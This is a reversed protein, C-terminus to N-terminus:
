PQVFINLASFIRANGGPADPFDIEATTYPANSPDVVCKVWYQDQADDGEDSLDIGYNSRSMYTINATSGNITIVDPAINVTRPPVPISPNLIELYVVEGTAPGSSPNSFGGGHAADKAILADYAGQEESTLAAINLPSGENLDVATNYFEFTPTDTTIIPDGFIILKYDPDSGPFFPDAEMRISRASPFMPDNFTETVVCRKATDTGNLIPLISTADVGTGPFPVGAMALITPYLDIVHVLRDSTSGAAITMDPGLAIFPVHIGGEYPDSKSNGTQGTPGYPAQVVQAPTGNDGVLIINTTNLDVSQLLRGIETDLAELAKEYLERNSTGTSGQLLESPPEHFPTHPANFGMWVFWPTGSLEQADIFTVAENVQDTTTYTTTGPTVTGNDNKIWDYYDGAGGGTIGIFEPWGGTNSYGDDDMAGGTGGLHWKGYSALAYPSGANAFAEPLTTEATSLIQGPAGVGTRWSQRGTIIAARTPSCVPQAYGNTFRVGQAALAQLNAMTPFTTGPNLTSNNDLPSSDTGWDDVILLLINHHTAPAITHTGLQTGGAGQFVAVVEFTGPGLDSLDVDFTLEQQSPRSVTGLDVSIGNVTISNPLFGLNAQAGQGMDGAITVTITTFPGAFPNTFDFGASDFAAIDTRGVRYFNHDESALADTDETQLADWEAVEAAAIATWSEPNGLNTTEQIEYSGGEIGSWLLTIDDTTPTNAAISEITDSKEPGGEFLMTVTAASEDTDPVGDPTGGTPDGFYARAINYPYVPTGDAAICTFYAWTGAPFEPTVCWRVNYENLDFDVGLTMGLDGKYDNDEMYRGLPYTASVAPGVNFSIGVETYLRTAWAPWADRGTLGTRVQYGSIMRRVTSGPDLPDGYAYPGYVPFGERTWGLVPSHDGNFNETYVNTAEDFDTSDGLQYRLASPNCHYHYFGNIQHALSADFTLRENPYADRNWLENGNPVDNGAGNSFSFSDRTDFMAVGNVFYGVAGDETLTHVTVTTPDVPVRPIRYLIARNNPFSPFFDTRTEDAYWPGMTYSALGTTRLYVWDDTHALEHLGAYTPTLQSAGGAPHLWTTTAGNPITNDNQFVRAYVGSRETFWSTLLPDASAWLTSCFLAVILAACSKMSLQYPATM